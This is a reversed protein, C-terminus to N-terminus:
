LQQTGKIFNVTDGTATISPCDREADAITAYDLQQGSAAVANISPTAPPHSLTDVVLNAAGPIDRNNNTFEAMYSLKALSDVPRSGQGLCPDADEPPHEAHM